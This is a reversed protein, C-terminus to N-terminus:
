SLIYGVAIGILISALKFIGKGMHNLVTVIALTLFALLWNQASGYSPSGVGGAMYNIATPYLSLGITFVVTGTILPPFLVRLRKVNLGVLVAVLGGVLQSGFITALDYGGAIAQMTPLYAFSVGLIVPLGSGFPGIPFLQLFTALAAIVLAGQVLIISDQSSLGAVRSLILAPTVCGVIMAVVHQVALPLAKSLPPRGSLEFISAQNM